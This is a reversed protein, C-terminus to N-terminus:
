TPVTEYTWTLTSDLYYLTLTTPVIVVAPDNAYVTNTLYSWVFQHNTLNYGTLAYVWGTSTWTITTPLLAQMLAIVALRAAASTTAYATQQAVIISTPLWTAGLTRSIAAVAKWQNPVARNAYTTTLVKRLTGCNNSHLNEYTVITAPIAYPTEAPGISALPFVETTYLDSIPRLLESLHGVSIRRLECILDLLQNDSLSCPMSLHLTGKVSLKLKVDTLEQSSLKSMITLLDACVTM